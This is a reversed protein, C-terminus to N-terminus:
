AFRRTRGRAQRRRMARREEETYGGWVGHEVGNEMAWALCPAAVPCRRCVAKAEQAQWVAPGNTGLPFFLEPDEAVCVADDRWHYGRRDGSALRSSPSTASSASM